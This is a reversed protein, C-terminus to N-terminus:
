SKALFILGHCKWDENKQNEKIKESVDKIQCVKPTASFVHRNEKAVEQAEKKNNFLEGYAGLYFTLNYTEVGRIMSEGKTKSIAYIIWLDEIKTGNFMEKLDYESLRCDETKDLMKFSKPKIMFHPGTNTHGIIIKGEESKTYYGSSLRIKFDKVKEIEKTAEEKNDALIVEQKKVRAEIIFDVLTKM